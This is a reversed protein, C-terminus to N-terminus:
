LTQKVVSNYITYGGSLSYCEFGNAELIRCAVYSKMGSKCHVYVPKNKDLTHLEKRLKELPIRIFGEISGPAAEIDNRVDILSVSGDRPLSDVENWHFQKVKGTILNEIAYGAYNVAEKASGFPPAYCLELEQLDSACAGFRIAAAFVDCRKDVGITGTLQAGLIKGDSKRFIVKVLMDTWGPYYRANSPILMYIKDYDIDNQVADRENIGTCAATMDFIKLIASGQTGTFESPIGFINDAAIRGQKNAPSALPIFAPTKLVFNEVQIADGAAYIDPDSTQMGKNVVISGRKNLELGCNKALATDPKVGVALIVTDAVISGNELNVSLHGSKEEISRVGNRLILNVGKSVLYSQIGAAMDYDFPVIIHDSLEVITVDMGANKLNEAIEIGIYGGGVVVASKAQKEAAYDKIKAADPIDRLTFVGPLDIEAIPPKIPDAGTSLLLKDYTETYTQGNKLDSVTITKKDRDIAIVNNETRVDVNFRLRFVEPTVVTLSSENKIHGGVFYPLGCNAFSIYRGRELMVIDIKEDLRRLRAAATAGGAVGGVIVVKM